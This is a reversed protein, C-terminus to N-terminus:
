EASKYFNILNIFPEVIAMGNRNHTASPFVCNELHKRWEQWKEWELPRITGTPHQFFQLTVRRFLGTIAGDFLTLVQIPFVTPEHCLKVYHSNVKSGYTHLWQQNQQQRVRNNFRTEARTHYVFVQHQSIRQGNITVTPDEAFPSWNHSGSHTITSLRCHSIVIIVRIM